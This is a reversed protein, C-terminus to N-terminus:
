VRFQPVYLNSQQLKSELDACKSKLRENDTVLTAASATAVMPSHGRSATNVSSPSTATRNLPSGSYTSASPILGPFKDAQLSETLEALQSEYYSKLDEVHRTHKEIPVAKVESETDAFSVGQSRLHPPMPCSTPHTLFSNRSTDTIPVPQFARTRITSNTTTNPSYSVRSIPPYQPQSSLPSQLVPTSFLSGEELPPPSVTYQPQSTPANNPTHLTSVVPSPALSPIPASYLPLPLPKIFEESSVGARVPTTVTPPSLHPPLVSLPYLLRGAEGLSLSAEPSGNARVSLRPAGLQTGPCPSLQTLVDRVLQAKFTKLQDLQDKYLQQQQSLHLQQLQETEEQQRAVNRGGSAPDTESLASDVSFRADKDPTRTERREESVEGELETMDAYTRVYTRTAM